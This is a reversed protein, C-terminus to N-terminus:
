PKKERCESCVRDVMDPGMFWGHCSKCKDAGEGTAVSKKLCELRRETDRIRSSWQIEMIPHGRDMELLSRQEALNATWFDVDQQEWRRCMDNTM